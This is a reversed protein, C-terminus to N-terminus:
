DHPSSQMPFTPLMLPRAPGPIVHVHEFPANTQRTIYSPVMPDTGGTHGAPDEQVARQLTQWTGESPLVLVRVHKQLASRTQIQAHRRNM